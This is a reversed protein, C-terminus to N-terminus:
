GLRQGLGRLKAGVPRETFEGGSREDCALARASGEPPLWRKPRPTCRAHVLGDQGGVRDRRRIGSGPSQRQIWDLVWSCSCLLQLAVVAGSCRKIAVRRASAAPRASAASRAQTASCASSNAASHASHVGLEPHDVYFKHM